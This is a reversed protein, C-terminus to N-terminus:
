SCCNWAANNGVQCSCADNECTTLTKQTIQLLTSKCGVGLYKLVKAFLLQNLVVNEELYKSYQVYQVPTHFLCKRRMSGLSHLVEFDGM